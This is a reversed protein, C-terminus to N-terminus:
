IHLRRRARSKSINPINGKIRPPSIPERNQAPDRRCRQQHDGDDSAPSSRTCRAPWVRLAKLWCCSRRPSDLATKEPKDRSRRCPMRRPLGTPSSVYGLAVECFYWLRLDPTEVCRLIQPAPLPAQILPSAPRVHLLINGVSSRAERSPPVIKGSRCVTEPTGSFPRSRRHAAPGSSTDAHRAAPSVAPENSLRFTERFPDADSARCRASSGACAVGTFDDNLRTRSFRV